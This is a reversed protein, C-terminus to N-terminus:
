NVMEVEVLRAWIKTMDNKMNNIMCLCIRELVGKIRQQVIQFSEGNDMMDSKENWYEVAMSSFRDM